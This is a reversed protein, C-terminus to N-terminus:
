RAAAGKTSALRARLAVSAPRARVHAPSRDLTALAESRALRAEEMRGAAELVAVRQAQREAEAMAGALRDLRALADVYRRARVELDCAELELVVTQGIRQTAQDLGRIAELLGKSGLRALIRARDLYHDPQPDPHLALARDFDLVAGSADGLRARARGRAMLGEPDDPRRYLFADFAVRAQWPRGAELWLIGRAFDV